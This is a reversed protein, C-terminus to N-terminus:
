PTTAPMTPSSPQWQAPCPPSLQPLTMQPGTTCCAVWSRAMPAGPCCCGDASVPKLVYSGNVAAFGINAANDATLPNSLGTVGDAQYISALTTGNALYVSVKCLPLIAGTDARAITFTSFKM